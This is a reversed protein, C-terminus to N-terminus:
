NRTVTTGGRADTSFVHKGSLLNLVSSKGSSITGFAVIELTEAQRKQELEKVLPDLESQLLADDGAGQALKDVQELNEDIEFDKEGASLRSPNKSRRALRRKKAISAGFLKWLTWGASGLVLLTGIGVIILYLVGWISGVGAAAQYNDIVWGPLWILGLGVVAMAILLFVGTFTKHM